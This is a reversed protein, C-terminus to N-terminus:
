LTKIGQRLTEAARALLGADIGIGLFDVGIELAMKQMVPDTTLIGAPKGAAQIRKLTELVKARAEPQAQNDGFGLSASLDAPGVFLADIGPVAAIDELADLAAVTEIQAIVCLEDACTAMYNEIRGFRTARTLGSVGRVGEPPYRTAAVAAQAEAVSNVMPILLTQAGADLMRKILATDNVAPRVWASVEPYGGLCQLQPLITLPDGPSHETDLCLWDYGAGAVVELAFSTSLTTWLGIQCRGTGLARKFRNEIM